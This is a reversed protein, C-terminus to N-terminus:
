VRAPLDLVPRRAGALPRGRGSRPRRRPRRLRARGRVAVPQRIAPRRDRRRPAHQRVPRAQPIAAPARRPPRPQARVPGVPRRRHHGRGRVGAQARQWLPRVASRAAVCVGPGPRGSRHDPRPRRPGLRVGHRDRRHGQRALPLPRGPRGLARVAPVAAGPHRPLVAGPLRRARRHARRPGRRRRRAGAGAGSRPLHVRRHRRLAAPVTPHGANRGRRRVPGLRGRVALQGRVLPVGAGAGARANARPHDAPPPPAGRRRHPPRRRARARGAPRHGRKRCGSGSCTRWAVRWGLASSSRLRGLCVRLRALTLCRIFGANPFPSRSALLVLRLASRSWSAVAPQRGLAARRRRRTPQNAPQTACAKRAHQAQEPADRLLGRRVQILRARM